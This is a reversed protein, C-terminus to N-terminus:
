LGWITGFKCFFFYPCVYTNEPWQGFFDALSLRLDEHCRCFFLLQLLRYFISLFCFLPEPSPELLDVFGLEGELEIYFDIVSRNGLFQSKESATVPFNPGGVVTVINPNISKAWSLLKYTLELNWSYNSCALVLPQKDLIAQSLPDPFKFLEINYIDGLMKQAYSAVFATGLPFTM